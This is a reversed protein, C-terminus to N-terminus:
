LDTHLEGLSGGIDQAVEFEFDNMEFDDLKTPFSLKSCVCRPLVWLASRGDFAMNITASFFPLTGMLPNGFVIKTGATTQEYTYSIYLDVQGTLPNQDAATFTTTFTYVGGSVTYDGTAGAIAPDFGVLPRGSWKVYVGQDGVFSASNAVTASGAVGTILENDQFIIRDGNTLSAGGTGSGGTTGVGVSGSTGSFFLDYLLRGRFGATKAKVMAKTKGGALAIPYRKQGYLAKVEPTFEPSCEQLVAFRVPTASGIAQTVLVGAGFGLQDAFASSM